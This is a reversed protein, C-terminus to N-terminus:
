DIFYKSLFHFISMIDWLELELIAAPTRVEPTMLHQYKARLTL